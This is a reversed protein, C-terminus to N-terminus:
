IECIIFIDSKVFAVNKKGNRFDEFVMVSIKLWNTKSSTRGFEVKWLVFEFKDTQVV